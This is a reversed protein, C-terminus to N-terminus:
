CEAILALNPWSNPKFQAKHIRCASLDRAALSRHRLTTPFRADRCEDIRLLQRRQMLQTRLPLM